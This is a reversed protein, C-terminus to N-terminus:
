EQSPGDAGVWEGPWLESPVKEPVHETGVATGLHPETGHGRIRAKRARRCGEQEMLSVVDVQVWTGLLGM